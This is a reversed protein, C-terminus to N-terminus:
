LVSFCHEQPSPTDHGERRGWEWRQHGKCARRCVGFTLRGLCYNTHTYM